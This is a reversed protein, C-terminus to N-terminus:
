FRFYIFPNFSTSVILITCYLFMFCLILVEFSRILYMANAVKFSKIYVAAKFFLPTSSFLGLFLTLLFEYDIFHLVSEKSGSNIGALVKIFSLWKNLDEIRFLSWGILIIISTYTWALIGPIKLLIKQLFLRELILFFCHFCGWFVFNWSAGHWLGTLLFVFFINRFTKMSGSKSGGIPFYLYDRFWESLSIHWRHWFERISRSIYPFNFNENIKFGFVRGLGIAMSSYGAFDFYIQLSYALLGLWAMSSSIEQIEKNLILDAFKGITNAIAVKMFLGLIFLRIGKYINSLNEHRNRFQPLIDNYRIIPGAILQPFYSVYLIGETFSGSKSGKSIDWLMSMQQFTYFSIGIPLVISGFDSSFSFNYYSSIQNINEIIFYLYKFCILLSINFVIGITLWAERHRSSNEILKAFAFNLLISAILILLHSVSSWAYFFISALVLITNRISKPSLYYVVVLLPLFFFLFVLSSFLM